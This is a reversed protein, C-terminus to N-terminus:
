QMPFQSEFINNKIREELKSVCKHIGDRFVELKLDVASVMNYM